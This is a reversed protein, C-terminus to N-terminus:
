ANPTHSKEAIGFALRRVLGPEDDTGASPTSSGTTSATGGGSSPKPSVGRGRRDTNMFTKLTCTFRLGTEPEIM